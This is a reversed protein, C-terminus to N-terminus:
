PRLKRRRVPPQWLLTFANRHDAGPGRTQVHSVQQPRLSPISSMVIQFTRVAMAALGQRYFVGRLLTDDVFEAGAIQVRSVECHPRQHLLELCHQAGLSPNPTSTAGM